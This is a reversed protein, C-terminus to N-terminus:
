AYIEIIVKDAVFEDGEYHGEAELGIGEQIESFSAEDKQIGAGGGEITWREYLIGDPCRVTVLKEKPSGLEPVVVCSGTGDESDEWLTLSLVFSDQEVSRVKGGIIIKEPGSADTEDGREGMRGEDTQGTDAEEELVTTISHEQEAGNGCGTVAILALSVITMGMIYRKKM